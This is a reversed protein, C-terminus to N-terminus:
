DSLVVRRRSLSQPEKAVCGAVRVLAADASDLLAFVPKTVLDDVPCADHYVAVVQGLRLREPRGPPQLPCLAWDDVCIQLSPPAHYLLVKPVDVIRVECWTPRAEEEEEKEWEWEDLWDFNDTYLVTM